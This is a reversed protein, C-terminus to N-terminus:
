SSASWSFVCEFIWVVCVASVKIETAQERLSKGLETTKAYLAHSKALGASVVSEITKHLEDAASELEDATVGSGSASAGLVQNAKQIASGLSELAQFLCSQM